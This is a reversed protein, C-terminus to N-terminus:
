YKKLLLTRYVHCVFTNKIFLKTKIPSYMLRNFDKILVYRSNEENSILLVNLVQENLKKSVYLPFFKNEYGFVNVNINFREEIIEYDRAKMPFNIGRYDLTKAIEKDQKKIREPHKDQPNISRIHCWKFCENDKNKLNILGKMPNKLQLPLSFSSSGALPDYNAINIWTDEIKDVIWRSGGDSYFELRHKIKEYANNLNFIQNTVTISDSNRYITDIDYTNTANNWKKLTVTTSLIYKFGRKEELLDRFFDNISRKALFFSDDLSKSDIVEAEYTGAYNRFATQKRLIGASDFFPLINSLIQYKTLRKPRKPKEPLFPLVKSLEINSLKKSSSPLRSINRIKKKNTQDNKIEGSYFPHIKLLDKKKYHSVM